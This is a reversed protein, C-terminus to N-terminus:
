RIIVLKGFGEKFLYDTNDQRPDSFHKYDSGDIKKTIVQYLYTGNALKDGFEDRGDWKYETRNLGIRLPGLEAATIERVVKGSLTMIRILVNGPEDRGTLTFVFQTSTSFPNPYNFVNSVMEENYVRFRVEYNKDGSSNSSEDRAEVTLKYEGDELLEPNYEIRSKNEEGQNAPYFDLAPDDITIERVDGNPSELLISFNEPSELLIFPNEDQLEILILPNSSVIDQDMIVIGDFTVNLLPNIKDPTVKFEDLGFNNFYYDERPSRATNIDLQFQYNGLLERTNYTFNITQSEKSKLDPLDRTETIVNNNEDIIRYDVKVDSMDKTSFNSIDYVLRLNDGQQLSDAYFSYNQTSNLSVDGFGEYYVRLKKVQVPSVDVFDNAYYEIKLYPYQTADITSLDLNSDTVKEFLLSEQSQNIDYGFVNIYATDFSMVTSEDIEWEIENWSQAPGIVDTEFGGEFWFGPILETVIIADELSDAIGEALPSVGKQYIFGFPLAHGLEQMKRVEISGESELINFINKGNYSLSDSAWEDVHFDSNADKFITYISVFFKDPVVEELFKMLNIRNELNDVKYNFTIAPVTYYNIAGHDGPVGNFFFRGLTDFVTVGILPGKKWEFAEGWWSNNIQFQPPNDQVRIRNDIKIEKLNTAFYFKRDGKLSMNEFDDKLYQYYHSQNWGERSEPDYIFSSESWVSGVGTTTSDPSIRWYYVRKPEMAFDLKWEVIGKVNLVEKQKFFPSNYGETTDIQIVFRQDEGLANYTSAVLSINSENVISFEKPYIPVASNNLIFFEFGETGNKSVLKNNFEADPSPLEEIEDSADVTVKIINKGVLRNSTIPMKICYEQNYLPIESRITTDSSLNGSPDFHEILIDYEGRNSKGINAVDFCVEFDEEYTDVFTPITKISSADPVVDISPFSALRVAPDGHLTLQQLFTVFGYNPIDAFEEIVNNLVTGIPKGYDEGGLRGYYRVAYEYQQRVYATGSAAIFCIAGREGSVIFQESIGELSTHINGSYCGLSFILPYRGRNEYKDINDISFDFKGVSSHGFFTIISLGNNILDFIQDSTSEEIAEVSKKYFTTVDAGFMNNELTDEMVRLNNALTEQLTADGGSLHLVKKQWQRDEITHPLSLNLDHDKIKDLYEKIENANKAALRGIPYIPLPIEDSALIMNDSGPNGWTPIFADQNEEIQQSTRNERYERGKGIIFMFKPEEYNEKTWYGYNRFAIFHRDVGYAFQDYLQDVNAIVPTYSGGIVSARYNAYEQVWDTADQNRLEKSSILIYDYDPNNYDVFERQAMSVPAGIGFDSSTLYIRKEMQGPPLFFGIKGDNTVEPTIRLDSELDYIVPIDNLNYGDIEFYRKTNSAQIYFMFSTDGEIDFERPYTVSAYAIINKDAASANGTLDLRLNSGSIEDFSLNYEKQVVETKEHQFTERDTNNIKVTTTHATSNGGFRISVTPSVGNDVAKSLPISITNSSKLGSGYGESAVFNSFRVQNSDEVPKYQVTSEVVMEQHMYFSEPDLNSANLDTEVTSYLLPNVEEEVTIFYASANSVVSYEPNLISEEDLYIFRDLEGRNRFGFFEIYEEDVDAYFSVSKGLHYVVLNELSTENLSLGNAILDEKSVRYVGDEEILLKVYTKEYDIWENGYLTEGDIEMQASISTSIIVFLILFIGRM